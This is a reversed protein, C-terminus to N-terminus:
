YAWLCPRIFPFSKCLHGTIWLPKRRRSVSGFRSLACAWESPRIPGAMKAAWHSPHFVLVRRLTVPDMLAQKEQARLMYGVAQLSSM